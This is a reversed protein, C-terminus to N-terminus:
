SSRSSTCTAPSAPRPRGPPGFKGAVTGDGPSEPYMSLFLPDEGGLAYCREYMAAGLERETVGPRVLELLREFCADAIRPARACGRRSRRARAPACGSSRRSPTSWSPTAPVGRAPGPLGGGEDGAGLGVVGIRRLPGLERLREPIGSSTDRAYRVKVNWGGARGAALNLPLLLEPEGGPPVVAYGYRHALNYDAVWRLAGKHGRYDNGALLLVDLELERVIGQLAEARRMREAPSLRSPGGPRLRHRRGTVVDASLPKSSRAGPQDILSGTM